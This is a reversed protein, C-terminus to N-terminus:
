HTEKLKKRDVKQFGIMPFEDQGWFKWKRPRNYGAFGQEAWWTEMDRKTLPESNRVHAYPVFGFTEHPTPVVVADLVAPHRKLNGEVEESFIKIGGSKFMHDSRGTLYYYGAVDRYLLDGTKWWGDPFNKATLEPDNWVGAAVGPGKVYMEGAKDSETVLKGTEPDRLEVTMAPLPKGVTGWHAGLYASPVATFLSIAETAGVGSLRQMNPFMEGVMAIVDETVPEGSVMSIRFSDLKFQEPSKKYEAYLMRVLTPTLQGHTAKEDTIGKLYTFPRFRSCVQKGAARLTGGTMHAWGVFSPSASTMFVNDFHLSFQYAYTMITWAWEGEKHLIPKPRSTTGSTYCIFCADGETIDVLPEDAGRYKEYIEDITVEGPFNGREELAIYERVSPIGTERVKRVTDLCENSYALTKLGANNIMWALLEISARSNMIVPIAGIKRAGFSLALVDTSATLSLWGVRDGKKVGADTRYSACIRRSYDGLEAYTWRRGEPHDVIAEKDGYCKELWILMEKMTQLM